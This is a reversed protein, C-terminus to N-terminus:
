VTEQESDDAGGEGNFTASQRNGFIGQRNDVIVGFWDDTLDKRM